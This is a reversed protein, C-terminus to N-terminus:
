LFLTPGRSKMKSKLLNKRASQNIIISLVINLPSDAIIVKFRDTASNEM